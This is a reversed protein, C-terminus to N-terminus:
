RTRKVRRALYDFNVQFQDPRSLQRKLIDIDEPPFEAAPEGAAEITMQIMAATELMIAGIVTEEVTQGAVVIGHNKLLVARHPGLAKAVGAGMKADRILAISGTYVGLADRFLAGPQSYAKMPQGMASFAVAYAPHTHIVCNVDARAKFIESHIFVESHRRATGAVVEGDLGITLINKPTIEDLGLSHAKMLFRSPNGPLRISVHGRTFDAQGAAALVKGALILKQRLKAHTM